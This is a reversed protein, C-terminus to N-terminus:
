GKILVAYDADREKENGFRQRLDFSPFGRVDHSIM